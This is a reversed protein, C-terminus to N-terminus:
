DLTGITRDCPEPDTPHDKIKLSNGHKDRIVVYKLENVNLHRYAKSLNRMANDFESRSISGNRDTDIIDFYDQPLHIGMDKYGLKRVLAKNLIIRNSLPKILQEDRTGM